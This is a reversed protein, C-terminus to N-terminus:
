ARVARRYARLRALDVVRAQKLNRAEVDGVKAVRRPRRDRRRPEVVGVIQELRDLRAVDEDIVWALAEGVADLPEDFRGRVVRPRERDLHGDVAHAVVV